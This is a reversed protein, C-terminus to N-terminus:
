LRKQFHFGLVTYSHDFYFKHALANTVYANLECTVAGEKRAWEEIHSLFAAGHGRGRESEDIVVHDLEFQRGSYLRTTIWGGGIGIIRGDVRCGFCRYHVYRLMERARALLTEDDLSPNLQRSLSVITPLDQDSLVVLDLPADM